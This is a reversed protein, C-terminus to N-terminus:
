KRKQKTSGSMLDTVLLKAFQFGRQNRITVM